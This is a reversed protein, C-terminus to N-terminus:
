QSQIGMKYLRFFLDNPISIPANINFANGTERRWIEQLERKQIPNTFTETLSFRFAMIENETEEKAVRLVHNWKYVGLRQFRSFLPKPKDLVVEDVYSCARISMTGQFTGTGKSIYWLLRAPASLVKPSSARYYVNEANFVLDPESGFLDQLAIRPDCLHMAWEPRISVIFTPMDIHTIKAPWLSREAEVLMQTDGDLMAASLTDSLNELCQASQPFRNRFSVLNSLLEKATGIFHPGVKTWIGESSIFGNEQLADTLHSNLHTDTIKTLVRQEAFSTLITRTALHQALTASHPGQVIRLIPVELEHSSRRDYVVLGLADSGNRVLTAEYTHPDVLCPQLRNRFQSKSEHGRACFTDVLFSSSESNVREARIPSGALRAPQYEAERIIADQRIILDSPRIIRIGHSEYIQDAKKLLAEDRTVFFEMDAAVARALHRLDSADSPTMQRPFFPRIKKTIETFRDDHVPQLITFTEAFQRMHQRHTKNNHRDIENLIESTLCLEVNEQLWDALLAQSEENDPTSSEQLDYFVNADIPVQLRGDARQEDAITFLTPHGHDYWWITLISGHMSRGPREGKAVFGLKPWLTSADYDRRCRVRIGRLTGKTIRKLEDFLSLAIGKNQTGECVCLHVIYALMTKRTTGYLLYGLTDQNDDLAVLLQKRAASSIFASRPLFGLTSSNARALDIVKEMQPSKAALPIITVM